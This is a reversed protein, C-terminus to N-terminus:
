GTYLYYNLDKFLFVFYHFYWLLVNYVYRLGTTKPMDFLLCSTLIGSWDDVPIQWHYVSTYM